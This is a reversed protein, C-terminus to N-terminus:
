DEAGHKYLEKMRMKALERWDLKNEEWWADSIEPGPRRNVERALRKALIEFDSLLERILKDKEDDGQCLDNIQRLAECPTMFRSATRM